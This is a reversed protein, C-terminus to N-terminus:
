KLNILIFQKHKLSDLHRSKHEICINSGCDCNYKIKSREKKYEKVEEKNNLRYEYAKQRSYEKKEEGTLYARLKNMNSKLEIMLKDEEILLETKTNCPFEKIIIMKFQDWGGNERIM